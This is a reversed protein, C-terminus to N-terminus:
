NERLGETNTKGVEGCGGEQARCYGKGRERKGSYCRGAWRISRWEKLLEEPGYCCGHTLKEGGGNFTSGVGGRGM